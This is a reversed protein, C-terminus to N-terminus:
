LEAAEWESEAFGLRNAIEHEFQVARGWCEALTEGWAILTLVPDGAEFSTGPWPVDAIARHCASAERDNDDLAGAGVLLRRPAHVILKAVIAVPLSHDNPLSETMEAGPQECARHHEPLLSRRMAREHVEISATYRPNVEVPWPIGDRLVYDVGFWGVLGFSSVLANGLAILRTTLPADLPWPGISGRYGFPCGAVGILQRTVGVLRAQSNAGLFVAAFSPGDVREQCYSGKGITHYLPAIGRGGGSRLPKALWTGDRPLGRHDLCVRPCPIAAKGLIEAVRAPDRVQRLAESGIGWLRHRRSIRDVVEPHNELGGTYFWPTPPLAEALAVFQSAAQRYDVRDVMAIAMLDRDAFYDACRPNFGCLVASYAAARASAGLIL